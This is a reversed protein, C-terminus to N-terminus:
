SQQLIGRLSNLCISNPFQMTLQKGNQKKYSWVQRNSEECCVSCTGVVCEVVAHDSNKPFVKVQVDDFDTVVIDLLNGERTPERVLQVANLKTIEDRLTDAEVSEHTSHKLWRKSHVNLDGVLITATCGASYKTWEERLTLITATQGLAPPPVMRLPM